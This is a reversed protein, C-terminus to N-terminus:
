IMVKKANIIIEDVNLDANVNFHLLIGVFHLLVYIIVM